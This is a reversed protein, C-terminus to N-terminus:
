QEEASRLHDGETKVFRLSDSQLAVGEAKAQETASM